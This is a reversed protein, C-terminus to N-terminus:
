IKASEQKCMEKAKTTILAVAPHTIKRDTTIAHYQIRCQDTTGIVQFRYRSVTENTIISPVAIFGRGEAALEKMLALDDCEAIVQPQIGAQRFWNELARRLVTNEAPLLAPANDLTHPFGERLSSALQRAACFTVDSEGLCHNYTRIATGSPAPEEALVIDLRHTALQALLDEMKGERCNIRTVQHRSFVPKLVENTVLKPFSDVVGVNLRVARASPHQKVANALENGLSFIQEAYDLAVHGADTLQIGRGSRRFLEENFYEELESIQASISPQSVHLKEAARRLSGEKAVVWFYRLHHYNIWEM